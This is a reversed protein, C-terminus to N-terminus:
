KSISTVPTIKIFTTGAPFQVPIINPTPAQLVRIYYIMILLIDILILFFLIMWLLESKSFKRTALKAIPPLAPDM